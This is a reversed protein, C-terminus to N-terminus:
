ETIIVFIITDNMVKHHSFGREIGVWIGSAMYQLTIKSLLTLNQQKDTWYKNLDSNEEM